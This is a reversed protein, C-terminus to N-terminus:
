RSLTAVRRYYWARARAFEFGARGDLFGFKGVYCHLFAIVSRGPMVRFIRKLGNRWAVPDTPWAGRANMGAEWQAYREHREYWHAPNAAADHMLVPKLGGIRVDARQATPQYHGEIEGMGPLGLDDM